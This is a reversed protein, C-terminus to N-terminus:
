QSKSRGHGVVSGALGASCCPSTLSLLCRDERTPTATPTTADDGAKSGTRAGVPRAPKLSAKSMRPLAPVDPWLEAAALEAVDAADEARSVQMPFIDPRGGTDGTGADSHGESHQESRM